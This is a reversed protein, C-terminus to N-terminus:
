AARCVDGTQCTATDTTFGAFAQDLRAFLVRADEDLPNARLSPKFKQHVAPRAQNNTRRGPQAASPFDAEAPRRLKMQTRASEQFDIAEM